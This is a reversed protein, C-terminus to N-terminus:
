HWWFNFVCTPDICNGFYSSNVLTYVSGGIVEIGSGWNGLFVSGSIAVPDSSLTLKVGDGPFLSTGNAISTVNTLIVLGNAVASMGNQQNYLLSSNTLTITKASQIYIGDARNNQALIRDLSVAGNSNISLGSSLNSSIRNMGTSNLVTIKGAAYGTLPVMKMDVGLDNNMSVIGNVTINGSSALYLGTNLVNGTTTLQNAIIAQPTTTGMDNSNDAYIGIGLVSDSSRLSTLTIVGHSWFAYGGKDNSLSTGGSVSLNKLTGGLNSIRVGYEGNNYANINRGSVAGSGIVMVGDGANNSGTVGNATGVAQINVDGGAVVQIGNANIPDPSPATSGFDFLSLTYDGANDGSSVVIHYLGDATLTYDIQSNPAGSNSALLTDSSDFLALRTNFDTSAATITIAKGATGQFFYQDVTSSATLRDIITEGIDAQLPDTQGPRLSISAISFSNSEALLNTLTVTGKAEINIGQFQNLSALIDAASIARSVAAGANRLYIGMGSNSLANVRSLTINGFSTARLGSYTQVHTPDSFGNSSAEDFTGLPSTVSINGASGTFDNQLSIGNMGNGNAALNSLTISGKSYIEVGRAGNDNFLNRGGGLTVSGTGLCIGGSLACNDVIMGSNFNVGPLGNSSASISALTVNGRALINLGSSGNTNFVGNSISVLAPLNTSDYGINGGSQANENAIINNISISGLSYVELGAVSNGSFTGGNVTAGIASNIQNDIFLGSMVNGAAHVSKVTVAGHSSISIGYNGNQNFEGFVGNLGPLISVAGTGQLNDIVVGQAANGSASIGTLNIGGKSLISIGAGSLNDDFFGNKIWVPQLSSATHNELVAGFEANGSSSTRDLSIMGNSQISIGSLSSNVISNNWGALTAKLTVSGLSGSYFNVINVGYGSNGVANFDSLSVSGNSRIYIGSGSATGTNASFDSGLASSITVSGTATCKTGNTLCNDLNIGDGANGSANVQALTISSKSYVQLGYGSGLSGNDNLDAGTIKVMGAPNELSSITLGNAGNGSVSLNSLTVAGGKSHIILGSGSNENAFVNDMTVSSLNGPYLVVGDGATANGFFSNKITISSLTNVNLGVSSRSASIGNITVVGRSTIALAAGTNDDFESNGVTVPYATTSSNNTISAGNGFNNSVEVNTVVVAGSQNNVTLADGADNNIGLNTLTLTGKNDHINLATSTSSADVVFGSLTFGANTGSIEITGNIQPIPDASANVGFFGILNALISNDIGNLTVDGTQSGTRLYIKRDLPLLKYTFSIADLAAQITDFNRTSQSDIYYVFQYLSSSVPESTLPVNGTVVPEANTQTDPAPTPEITSAPLPTTSEGPIYTATSTPEVPTEIPTVADQAYVRAPFLLFIILFLPIVILAKSFRKKM